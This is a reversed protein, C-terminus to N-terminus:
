VSKYDSNQIIAASMGSFVSEIVNHFQAGSPLPALKVHPTDSLRRFEPENVKDIEAFLVKSCHWSAVDWSLYITSYGSYKMILINVMKIIEDSNKKSSYFHVVLNTALELAATVILSGKSRQFQPVTPCKGKLVLKLGGREKVAFPGFEDISFFRELSKLNSLINKITELKKKYNPDKSTLVEKAKM